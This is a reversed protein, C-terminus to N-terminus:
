QIILHNRTRSSIKRGKLPGQLSSPTTKVREKRAKSAPSRVRAVHRASRSLSLSLFPRRFSPLRKPLLPLPPASFRESGLESSRVALGGM